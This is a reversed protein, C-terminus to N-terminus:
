GKEVEAVSMAQQVHNHHQHREGWVQEAARAMDGSCKGLIEQLQVRSARGCVKLYIHFNPGHEGAKTTNSGKNM